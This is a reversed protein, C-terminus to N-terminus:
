ARRIVNKDIAVRWKCLGMGDPAEWTCRFPEVSLLQRDRDYDIQKNLQSIMLAHPEDVTSCAPCFMHVALIGGREYVDVELVLDGYRLMPHGLASKRLDYGASAGRQKDGIITFMEETNPNIAPM